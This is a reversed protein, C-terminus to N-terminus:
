YSFCSCSLCSLRRCSVRSCPLCSCSFVSLSESRVLFRRVCISISLRTEPLQPDLVSLLDYYLAPSQEWELLRDFWRAVDAHKSRCPEVGSARSIGREIRMM